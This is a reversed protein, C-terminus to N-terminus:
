AAVRTRRARRLEALPPLVLSLVAALLLLASVPRTVFPLLSNNSLAMAIRFQHEAMRGLILGLILPLLPFGTESMAYGLLGFCVFTWVDFMRSNLAYCGVTCMVLIAPYLLYRPVLLCKIFFRICVTQIILMLFNCLFFTVIISFVLPWSDRFLLPGPQLGHIMFAGLMMLTTADGPIGLTLLPIMAGGTSANNATESAIIGDPNGQGFTEPNKSAARAQAYSVINSLGPGVGPLIGIVIGIISSRIFNGVSRGTERVVQLFDRVRFTTNLLEFPRNIDKIDRLIQTVAFMGILVPLEAFGAELQTFGFTFRTVSDTPSTGVMSLVLGLCGAILGKLTSGKSVVGICTLTFIVMTFYEYPSFKIAFRALQPAIVALAIASITGGVFSAFIGFGLARGAEGRKAMPYADFTTAVSSPTGPINLLTASVLGGSIAGVYVAVLMALGLRVDMGFTVPVLLGVAMTSTLGPIAGIVLGGFVGAVLTLLVTPSLLWLFTELSYHM